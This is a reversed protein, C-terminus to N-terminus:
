KKGVTFPMIINCESSINATIVVPNNPKMGTGDEEEFYRGDPYIEWSWTALGDKFNSVYFDFYLNEKICKRPDEEIREKNFAEQISILDIEDESVQVHNSTNVLMYGTKKNKNILYIDKGMKSAFLFMCEDLSIENYLPKAMNTLFVYLVKSIKRNM